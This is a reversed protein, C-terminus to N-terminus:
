GARLIDLFVGETQPSPSAGLEDRLLTRCRDFVRLAEARNGMSAHLRMLDQYATERYPELELVETMYQVALAGQGSANSISALCQLGRTLTSLLATRRAVIWGSELDPLFPRRTISVAVNAFGWAEAPAGGRMLGEAQDIANAAEELDVWTETPLRLVVIGSLTEITADSASWGAKRFAARLKSLIASLATEVDVPPDGAWIAEIVETRSIPRWRNGVLFAFALRGQRGPLDRETMLWDLRELLISGTLYIRAISM